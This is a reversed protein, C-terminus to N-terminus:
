IPCTQRRRLAALIDGEHCGNTCCLTAAPATGQFTVALSHAVCVPCRATVADGHVGQVDRLCDLLLDRFRCAPAPLLM